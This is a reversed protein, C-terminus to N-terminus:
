RGAAPTGEPAGKGGNAAPAPAAAPAAKGAGAQTSAETEVCRPSCTLTVETTGRTLSVTHDRAAGVLVPRNLIERGQADLILLRSQGTKLGLLVLRNSAVPTVNFIAPDAVHVSDTPGDVPLVAVSGVEVRIPEVKEAAGATAAMAVMAPVMLLRKM